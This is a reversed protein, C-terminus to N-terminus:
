ISGGAHSYMTAGTGDLDARLTSGTQPETSPLHGASPRFALNTVSIGACTVIRAPPEATRSRHRVVGFVTTKIRPPPAFDM